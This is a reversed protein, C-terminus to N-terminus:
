RPGHREDQDALYERQVAEKVWLSRPSSGCELRNALRILLPRRETQWATVM